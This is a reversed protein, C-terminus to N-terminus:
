PTRNARPAMSQWCNHLASLARQVVVFPLLLFLLLLAPLLVFPLLFLWRVGGGFTVCCPEDLIGVSLHVRMTQDARHAMRRSCAVASGGFVSIVGGRVLEEVQAPIAGLNLSGDDNFATFTAACIGAVKFEPM